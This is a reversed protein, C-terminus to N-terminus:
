RYNKNLLLIEQRTIAKFYKENKIQKGLYKFNKTDINLLRCIECTAGNLGTCRNRVLCIYASAELRPLGFRPVVKNQESRM